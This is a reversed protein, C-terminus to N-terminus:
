GPNNFWSPGLHDQVGKVGPIGEAAVVLARRQEDSDVVGWLHVIGDSVVINLQGLDAWGSERLEAILRQRIEPDSVAGTGSPAQKYAVLGYLLNARSIIGIPRGDQLVPVRKIRRREMLEAVEALDTDPAVGVVDRTMVDRVHRAHSKVFEAALGGRDVFMELWRPRHRETHSEERHLLDGETVIGVVKGAEDVVPVGSIRHKLLLSAVESVTTDPTVTIVPSTMVDKAQM